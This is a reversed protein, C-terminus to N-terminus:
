FYAMISELRSAVSRVYGLKVELSVADDRLGLISRDDTETNCLKLKRNHGIM